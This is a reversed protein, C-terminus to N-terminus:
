WKGCSVYQTLAAASKHVNIIAGNMKIVGIPKNIFTTSTGGVVNSLPYVVAGVSQCDGTHIHAPQSAGPPEGTLTITVRTGFGQPTLTATGKEGSKNEARMKFTVSTLSKASVFTASTLAFAALAVVAILRTM